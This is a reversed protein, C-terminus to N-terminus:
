DDDDSFESRACEVCFHVVQDNEDLYTKWREALDTWQLLWCEVCRIVADNLTTQPKCGGLQGSAFNTVLLTKGDPEVDLERPFKSSRLSGVLAPKGALAAASDIISLGATQGAALFRNSDAVVIEAGQDIVTVGVPAAGVRM